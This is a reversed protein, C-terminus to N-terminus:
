PSSTSVTTAKGNEKWNYSWVKLLTFTLELPRMSKTTGFSGPPKTVAQRGAGGFMPGYSKVMKGTHCSMRVSKPRLPQELKGPPFQPTKVETDPVAGLRMNLM